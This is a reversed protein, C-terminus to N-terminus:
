GPLGEVVVMKSVTTRQRLEKAFAYDASSWWRNAQEVSPFELIVLREPLWDGELSEVHGGRVLYKGGFKAILPPAQRKYDEYAEPETVKIEVIVYATM